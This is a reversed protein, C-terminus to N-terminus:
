PRQGGVHSPRPKAPLAQGTTNAQESGFPQEIVGSTSNPKLGVITLAGSCKRRRPTSNMPVSRKSCFLLDTRAAPPPANTPRRDQQSVAQWTSAPLDPTAIGVQMPVNAVVRGSGAQQEEVISQPHQLAGLDVATSAHTM